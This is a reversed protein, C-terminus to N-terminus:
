RGPLRDGNTSQRRSRRTRATGTERSKSRSAAQSAADLELPQSREWMVEFLMSLSTALQKHRIFLTRTRDGPVILPLLVVEQDFIQLKHPLEGEFVRAEEGGGIWGALHPGILPDDIVAREYIARVRVGKRRVKKQVPNDPRAAIFIPAKVFGQIEREAELQLREYRETIVRPDRLIQILEAAEGTVEAPEAIAELEHILDEAVRERQLLKERHEDRERALLSPLARTPRIATFRSGYGAEAEVIGKHVLSNLLPYVGTRPVGTAAALASAGLTGGSRLLSLYVQAEGTSLGLSELKSQHVNHM